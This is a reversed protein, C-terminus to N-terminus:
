DHNGEGHGGEPGPAVEETMEGCRYMMAGWYPNEVERNSQLWNAGRNDFAMSCHFLYAPTGAGAGFSKLTAYMTQSLPEFAMRAMEIDGASRVMAAHNRFDGLYAIWANHAAGGLLTMDGGPLSEELTEAADRAMELSDRSLGHHIELYSDFVRDMQDTFDPPVGFREFTRLESVGTAPGEMAGYRHGPVPGAGEPNMMSPKALIQIASDIKFNGNTVIREGEELGEEVVYYDGARPGLTIERGTYLGPEIELYVVARKGTMLPASAPIVLPAEASGAPAMGAEVVGRVFMEPKLKGGPNELNVRVKATRTRPDLVPDIFDV